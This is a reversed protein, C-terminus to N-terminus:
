KIKVLRITRNIGNPTLLRCYFMKSPLSNGYEDKGDWIVTNFGAGMKEDVLTKILRGSVDYISLKIHNPAAHQFRICKRTYRFQQCYTTIGSTMNISRFTSPPILAQLLLIDRLRFMSRVIGILTAPFLPPPFYAM